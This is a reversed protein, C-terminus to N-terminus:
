KVTQNISIQDMRKLKLFTNALSHRGLSGLQWIDESADARIIHKNGYAGEGFKSLLGNLVEGEIIYAHIKSRRRNPHFLDRRNNFFLTAKVRLFNLGAANFTIAHRSTTVLANNSALGGGLSHGIFLLKNGKLSEDLKKAMTVSTTYQGSIGLLGQTINNKWDNLSTMNTGATCYFYVNEGRKKYLRSYFGTSADILLNQKIGLTKHLEEDSVIDFISINSDDYQIDNECLGFGKDNHYIKIGSKVKGRSVIEKVEDEIMQKTFKSLVELKIREISNKSIALCRIAIEPMSKLVRGLAGSYISPTGTNIKGINFLTDFFALDGLVDNLMNSIQLFSFYASEKTDFNLSTDQLLISLNEKSFLNSLIIASSDKASKFVKKIVKSLYLPISQEFDSQLDYTIQCLVAADQIDIDNPTNVDQKLPIDVDMIIRKYDTSDSVYTAIDSNNTVGYPNLSILVEVDKYIIKAHDLFKRDIFISKIYEKKRQESLLFYVPNILNSIVDLQNYCLILFHIRLSRVNEDIIYKEFASTIDNKLQGVKCLTDTLTLVGYELNFFFPIHIHMDDDIESGNTNGLTPNEWKSVTYGSDPEGVTNIRVGKELLERRKKQAELNTLGDVFIYAYINIDVESTEKKPVFSLQTAQIEGIAAMALNM